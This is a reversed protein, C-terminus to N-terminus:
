AEVYKSWSKLFHVITGKGFSTNYYKKWYHALGDLDTAEPLAAPVRLYHVRAMATAYYLNGILEDAEHEFYNLADYGTITLSRISQELDGRYDIYNEWIDDHTAKEVQYIGLAPGGGVQKIYDGMNSEAAATGLLLQVASESYLDLHELVPEIVLEKLQNAKM